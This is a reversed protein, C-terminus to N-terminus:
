TFDKVGILDLEEDRAIRWLADLDSKLSRLAYSRSVAERREFNAAIGEMRQRYTLPKTAPEIAQLTDPM